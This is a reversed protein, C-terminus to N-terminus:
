PCTIRAQNACCPLSNMKRRRGARPLVTPNYALGATEDNADRSEFPTFEDHKEVIENLAHEFSSPPIQDHFMVPIFRGSDLDYPQYRAM